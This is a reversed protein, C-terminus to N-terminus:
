HPNPVTVPPSRVFKFLGALRPSKKGARRSGRGEASCNWLKFDQPKFERSISARANM